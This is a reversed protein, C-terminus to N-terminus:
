DIVALLDQSLSIKKRSLYELKGGPIKTVSIQRGDYNYIIIGQIVDVLAFYNPSQIIM